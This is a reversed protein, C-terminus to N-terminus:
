IRAESPNIQKKNGTVSPLLLKPLQDTQLFMVSHLVWQVYTSM